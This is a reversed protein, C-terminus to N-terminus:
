NRLKPDIADRLGEGVLNYSTITLFIAIGPFITLWWAIDMFERSQSLLDGWSPTPPQVGFGLFSLSSEILVASAVGFTASVLIPSIANPMIHRWIIRRNKMGQARCAVIFDQDRLKLFEGRMLRAIGTWGTFGIALPIYFPSPPLVAVLTLILFFTPFCIMIEILRSVAMDVTGGFYGALSGFFMGILVYIAVAVIGVALSIRSGHILRSLVDRGQEDTGLWHYSDPPMLISNLDYDDYSYPVLTYYVEAGKKEWDKYSVEKLEPYLNLKKIPWITQLIPFYIQSQHKVFVPTGNALFPALLAVVVMTLIIALGVRNLFRRNFQGRVMSWYRPVLIEESPGQPTQPAAVLDLQEEEVEAEDPPNDKEEVM